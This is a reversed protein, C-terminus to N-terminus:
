SIDLPTKGVETNILLEGSRRSGPNSLNGKGSSRELAVFSFSTSNQHALGSILHIVMASRVTFDSVEPLDGDVRLDGEDVGNPLSHRPFLLVKAV